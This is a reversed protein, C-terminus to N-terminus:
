RRKSLRVQIGYKPRLTFRPDIEVSQDPVLEVQFRQAIASLIMISEMVAFNKGICIHPGGGWPMYASKPRQAVQEPLFRDPDFTEPHQWFDPHRLTYYTAINLISGKPIRYGQIEDDVKAVRPALNMGPPRLRLSEDFIRRTYQLQPLKEFTPSDGQLVSDIEAQMQAMVEPHTGLLHWTWALTTASTEHGANILTIVENLLERDSMGAGTEEDKASMLMSLLDVEETPQERRSRIIELVIRDITQKARRFERNQRTPM